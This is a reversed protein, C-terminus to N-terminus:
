PLVTVAYAAPSVSGLRAKLSQPRNEFMAAYYTANSLVNKVYGRTESFPITEAFIAGDVPRTLSARWSRPRKPGANYAASAMTQSGDLDNLVMKLYHTGLAINTKPDNVASQSFGEMGVKRAVWKATAPMLQMLGSAGASSKANMVFRSEQRILGYAWAMDLGLQKTADRMLDSYPTPFRQTFDFENRTRESTSVMRDLVQQERAYEAAALWERESMRRLEWNWERIGEFRMNLRFFKLARAFGPNTSMPAMEAATVPAAQPPISIRQGLEELALQGYFHHKDAISQYLNQAEGTRGEEALARGLWYVWAPDDQLSRPMAGIAGRVLKWDGARLAARVKWEHGDISLPANAAKRWYGIAEPALNVSAPLAIQAWAMAQEQPSLKGIAHKLVFAAAQEHNKRALRGLAIMFTEHAARGSQPGRALTLLPLDVSRAVQGDRAGVLEALDEALGGRGAEAALRIQTWVDDAGFQGSKSLTAILAQCGEGYKKPATLLERADEAAKGAKAVSSMLAYCKVQLDDRVVFQPYHRDFAPWNRQRGLELLWDNRLRDAIASGAYRSLFADIERSSANRIRTKLRYYDVYSQTDYNRLRDALQTARSANDKRAAERLDLFLSDADEAAHAQPSLAAFISIAFAAIISRCSM